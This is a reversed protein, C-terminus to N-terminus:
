HRVDPLYCPVICIMPNCKKQTPILPQTQM